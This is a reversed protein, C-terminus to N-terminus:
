DVVHFSRVSIDISTYELPINASRFTKKSQGPEFITILVDIRRANNHECLLIMYMFVYYIPLYYYAKYFSFWDNFLNQKLKDDPKKEYASLFGTWDYQQRRGFVHYIFQM